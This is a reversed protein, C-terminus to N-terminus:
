KKPIAAPMFDIILNSESDRLALYRDIFRFELGDPLPPLAELVNPPVTGLPQDKPYQTNVALKVTGPAPAEDKISGKTNQGKVGAFEPALIKRFREQIYPSFIDGAKAATRKAQIKAALTERAITIKAADKTERQKAAGNNEGDRMSAYEKVRRDFEALAQQDQPTLQAPAQKKPAQAHLPSAILALGVMCAFLNRM